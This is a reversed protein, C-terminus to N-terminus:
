EARVLGNELTFGTSTEAVIVPAATHPQPESVAYGYSSAQIFSPKGNAEVVERRPWSLTNLAMIRETGKPPLLKAEARERLAAARALIEAYDKDSDQYVERISSGPIIDHFQNTCIREWLHAIETAPASAPALAWLFEVDHLLEEGRRNDRKNVAEPM